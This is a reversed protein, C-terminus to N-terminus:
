TLTRGCHACGHEDEVDAGHQMGILLWEHNDATEPDLLVPNEPNRICEGCLYEGDAMLYLIRYGADRIVATGRNFTPTMIHMTM